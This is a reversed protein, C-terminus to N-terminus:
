LSRVLKPFVPVHGDPNGSKEQYLIGFRHFIYWIVVLYVLHGYFIELLLLIFWITMFYVLNKWQLIRWFKGFIPIQFCIMQCGQHGHGRHSSAIHTHMFGNTV